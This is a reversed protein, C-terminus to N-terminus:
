SREPTLAAELVARAEERWIRAREPGDVRVVDDWTWDDSDTSGAQFTARAAREVMEDDIQQAALAGAPAHTRLAAWDHENWDKVFGHMQGCFCFGTTEHSMATMSM